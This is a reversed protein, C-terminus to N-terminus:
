SQVALLVARGGTGLAPLPMAVHEQCIKARWCWPGLRFRVEKAM